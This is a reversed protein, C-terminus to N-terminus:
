WDTLGNRQPADGRRMLFIRSGGRFRTVVIKKGTELTTGNQRYTNNLELLFRKGSPVTFLVPSDNLVYQLNVEINTGFNTIDVKYLM